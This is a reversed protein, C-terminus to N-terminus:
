DQPKSPGRAATTPLASSIYQAKNAVPLNKVARGWDTSRNLAWRGVILTKGTLNATRGLGTPITVRLFRVRLGAACSKMSQTRSTAFDCAFSYAVLHLAAFMLPSHIQRCRQRCSQTM